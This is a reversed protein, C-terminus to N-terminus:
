NGKRNKGTLVLTNFKTWVNDGDGDYIRKLCWAYPFIINEEGLDYPFTDKGLEISDREWKGILINKEIVAIIYASLELALGNIGEDNKDKKYELSIKSLINEVEKISQISFDLNIGYHIGVKLSLDILEKKLKNIDEM